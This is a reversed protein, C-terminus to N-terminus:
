DRRRPLRLALLGQGAILILAATGPEPASEVSVEGSSMFASTNWVLGESLPAQTFDFAYGPGANITKGVPLDFLDFTAGDTPSFNPALVLAVTGNLLTDSTTGTVVVKGASTLSLLNMHLTGNVTLDGNVILQGAAAASGPTMRGTTAITLAGQITGTGTLHGAAVLTGSGLGTVSSNNLQLTGGDFHFRGPAADLDLSSVNLVSDTGSLNLATSGSNWIKLTSIFTAAAGNAVTLTGSGAANGSTANGGVYAEARHTWTSGANQITVSGTGRNAGVLLGADGTQTVGSVLSAGNSVILSGTSGNGEYGVRLGRNATLTSGVGDVTTLGTGRDYGIDLSGTGTTGAQGGNTVALTGTSPASDNPTSGVTIGSGTLASGDGDVTAQGTGGFFGIYVTSANARGGGTLALTGNVTGSTAGPTHSGVFVQGATLRAPGNVTLKGTGGSGSGNAGSGIAANGAVTLVRETAATLTLLGNQGAAAGVGLDSSLTLGGTNFQVTVDGARVNLNAAANAQNVSVAYALGALTFAADNASGPPGGNSWNAPTEWAGDASGALGQWIHEAASAVPALALVLAYTLPGPLLASRLTM